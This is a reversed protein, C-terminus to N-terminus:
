RPGELFSRAVQVELTNDHERLFAVLNEVARGRKLADRLELLVESPGHARLRGDVSRTLKAGTAHVMELAANATMQPVAGRAVHSAPTLAGDLGRKRADQLIEPAIAYRSSRSPRLEILVLGRNSLEQLGRQVRDFSLDGINDALDRKCIVCSDHPGHLVILTEFGRRAAETITSLGTIM